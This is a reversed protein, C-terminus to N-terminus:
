PSDPDTTVCHATEDTGPTAFEAEVIRTVYLVHEYAGLNCYRGPASLHGEFTAPMTVVSGGTLSLGPPLISAMQETLEPTLAACYPEEGGYPTFASMEFNSRYVGCFATV